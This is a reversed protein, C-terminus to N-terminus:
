LNYKNMNKIVEPPNKLSAEFLYFIYKVIADSIGRLSGSDNWKPRDEFVKKLDFYNKEDQDFKQKISDLAQNKIHKKIYNKEEKPLWSNNLRDYLHSLLCFEENFIEPISYLKAKYTPHEDYRKQYKHYDDLFSQLAKVSNENVQRGEYTKLYKM